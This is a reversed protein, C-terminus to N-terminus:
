KAMMSQSHANETLQGLTTLHLEERLETPLGALVRRQIHSIIKILDKCYLSPNDFGNDARYRHPMYGGGCVDVVPCKKCTDCLSDAGVLFSQVLPFDYVDDIQNRLVNLGLKTFGEGCAKLSDVPEIGGDTEIVVYNSKNGGIDSTTVQSGFILGMINEFFRITYNADADDFWEDFIPILWDAYPTEEGNTTKGPPLNDYTGDPLLFEVGKLGFDRLHRYVTLPDSKINIVTLISQFLSAYRDDSAVLKTAESVQKYSGRGQHDVRNTDHAEPTGDLSIGFGIGLEIFLELWEPTLLTGNTQMMYRPKVEPLFESNTFEVFFRYLEKGVLLPEGGHFIWTVSKLHHCLAHEKVKSVTARIVEQSM